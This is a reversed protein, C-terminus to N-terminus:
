AYKICFAVMEKKEVLWISYRPGLLTQAAGKESYVPTKTTTERM